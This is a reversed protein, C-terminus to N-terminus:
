AQHNETVKIIGSSSQEFGPGESPLVLLLSSWAPQLASSASAVNAWPKGASQWPVRKFSPRAKCSVGNEFRFWSFFHHNLTTKVWFWTFSQPEALTQSSALCLESHKAPDQKVNWTGNPETEWFQFRPNLHPTCFSYFSTPMFDPVSSSLMLKTLM